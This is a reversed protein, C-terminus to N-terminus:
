QSWKEKILEQYIIEAFIKYALANPYRNVNNVWFLEAKKNKFYAEYLDLLPLNNKRCEESYLKHIWKFAYKDEALNYLWPFFTVIVPIHRERSLSALGKLAENIKQHQLGPGTYNYKMGYEDSYKKLHYEWARDIIDEISSVLFRISYLQKPIRVVLLRLWRLSNRPEIWLKPSLDHSFIILDPHYKLGYKKLFYFKQLDDYQNLGANIVEYRQFNAFPKRENLIVELQKVFAEELAVRMGFTACEGIAIIRFTDKPKDFPYERDRLRQPNIKIKANGKEGEFGARHVWRIDPDNIEEYLKPVTKWGSLRM